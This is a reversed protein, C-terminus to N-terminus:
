PAAEPPQNPYATEFLKPVEAQATKHDPHGRDHYPHAPDKYVADIKSKAAEIATPAPTKAEPASIVKFLKSMEEVARGHRPDRPNFYPGAPDAMVANITDQAAERETQGTM